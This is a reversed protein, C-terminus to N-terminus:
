VPAGAPECSKIFALLQRARDFNSHGDKLCRIRGAARVQQNTRSDALLSRLKAVLEEPIAFFEAERGERYLGTMDDTRQALLLGGCAPIEFVRRTYTDRNRGSFFALSVKANCIARAYDDGRLEYIARRHEAPIPARRWGRPHGFIRLSIGAQWVANLFRARGDNEYHGIYIVDHVDGPALAPLPRDVDVRFYSRSLFTRRAGARRALLEQRPQTIIVSDVFPITALHRRWLFGRGDEFPNDNNYTFIRTSPVAARIAQLSSPEILTCRWLIVADYSGSSAIEVLKRNTAKGLSGAWWGKAALYGAFDAQRWNAQSIRRDLKFADVVAGANRLGAAMAEEYIPYIWEGALLIRM